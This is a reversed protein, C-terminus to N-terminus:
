RTSGVAQHAPLSFGVSEVRHDLGSVVMLIGLSPDSLTYSLPSTHTNKSARKKQRFQAGRFYRKMEDSNKSESEDNPTWEATLVHGSQKSIVFSARQTSISQDKFYPRNYFIAYEDQSISIERTPRGFKAELSARSDEGLKVQEVERLSIASRPEVVPTSSCSQLLLAAVSYVLFRM